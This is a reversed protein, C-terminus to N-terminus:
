QRDDLSAGGDMWMTSEGFIPRLFRSGLLGFRSPLSSAAESTALSRMRWVYQGTLWPTERAFGANSSHQQRSSYPSLSLSYLAGHNSQQIRPQCCVMSVQQPFLKKQLIIVERISNSGLLNVQHTGFPFQNSPLQFFHLSHNYFGRRRERHTSTATYFSLQFCKMPIQSYEWRGYRNIKYVTFINLLFHLTVRASSLLSSTSSLRHRRATQFGRVTSKICSM